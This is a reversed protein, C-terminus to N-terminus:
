QAALGTGKRAAGAGVCRSPSSPGGSGPASVLRSGRPSASFLPFHRGAAAYWLGRERCREGASLFFFFLFFGVVVVFLFVYRTNCNAGTLKGILEWTFTRDACSAPSQMFRPLFLLDLLKSVMHDMHVKSCKTRRFLGPPLAAPMRPYVCVGWGGEVLWALGSQGRHLHQRAGLPKSPPLWFFCIGPRRFRSKGDLVVCPSVHGRAGPRQELLWFAPRRCADDRRPSGLM